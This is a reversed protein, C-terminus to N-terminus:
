FDPEGYEDFVPMRFKYERTVKPPYPDDVQDMPTAPLIGLQLLDMELQIPLSNSM